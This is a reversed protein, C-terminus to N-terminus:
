HFCLNKILATKGVGWPITQNKVVWLFPFPTYAVSMYHTSSAGNWLV